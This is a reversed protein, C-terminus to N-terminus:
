VFRDRRKNVNWFSVYMLLVFWFFNTSEDIVVTTTQGKRVRIIRVFGEQTEKKKM